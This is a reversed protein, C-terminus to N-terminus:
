VASLNSTRERARKAILVFSGLLILPAIQVRLADHLLVVSFPLLWLALLMEREGRRFGERLAFRAFFAITLALWALDYDYLYPSVLLSGSVLTASRLDHDTARRWVAVVVGAVVLAIALQLAFALTTPLGLLRGFAFFTPMKRLPLENAAVARAMEPLKAVFAELTGRGFVAVSAGLTM